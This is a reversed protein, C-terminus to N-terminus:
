FFIVGIEMTGVVRDESVMMLDIKEKLGDHSLLAVFGAKKSLSCDVGSCLMSGFKVGARFGTKVSIRQAVIRGGIVAVGTCLSHGVTGGLTVGWVNETAALVITSIQSRDGWEALFTMTFAQLFVRAISKWVSVTMKIFRQSRSSVTPAELLDPSKEAEERRRLDSQVEELEEQGEGPKMKMGEVLMKIGFIAFLGSSIYLTYKKPIVTVAYGLASSEGSLVTMLFLASMAGLFVTSRPHRMAMIAAIFFTKDGIESVVVISLAAVFAHMFGKNTAHKVSSSHNATVNALAKMVSFFSFSM